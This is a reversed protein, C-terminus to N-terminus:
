KLLIYIVSIVENPTWDSLSAKQLPGLQAPVKGGKCRSVSISGNNSVNRRLFELHHAFDMIATM